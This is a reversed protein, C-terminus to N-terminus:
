VIVIKFRPAYKIESTRTNILKYLNNEKAVIMYLDPNLQTRTKSLKNKDEYLYCRFLFM